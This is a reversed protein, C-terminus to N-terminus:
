GAGAARHPPRPPPARGPARGGAPPPPPPGGARRAPPPARRPGGGPPGGARSPGRGQPPRRFRPPVNMRGGHRHRNLHGDLLDLWFRELRDRYVSEVVLLRGRTVRVAEDLVAEPTEAHHLALSLLTTDFAGDGFPLRAGDYVVYPEAALRFPGVDVACAWVAARTRLAEAVWGEGAGLDLLRPGRIWPLLARAEAHAYRRLFAQLLRM